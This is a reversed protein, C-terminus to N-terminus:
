VHLFIEEINELLELALAEPNTSFRSHINPDPVVSHFKDDLDEM